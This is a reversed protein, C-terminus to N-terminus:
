SVSKVNKYFKKYSGGIEQIQKINEPSQYDSKDRYSTFAFKAYVIFLIVIIFACTVFYIIKKKHLHINM